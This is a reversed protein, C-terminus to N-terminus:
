IKASTSQQLLYVHAPPRSKHFKLDDNREAPRGRFSFEERARTRFQLFPTQRPFPHGLTGSHTSGLTAEVRDNVKRM